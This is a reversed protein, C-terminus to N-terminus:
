MKNRESLEKYSIEPNTYRGRNQTVNKYNIARQPCYQLCAICNECHHNFQPRNNVIEINKVPCVEKCIGCGTCNNDVGYDKDMTSVKKIFDKNIFSFIKMLRNVRNKKKNKKKKKIQVLKKNSKNTIKEIRKSMDYLLVYNSFMQLKRTFNLKINHKNLLLEYIQNMANGAGGGYTIIAYYYSDNNNGFNMNEIFETVKKPLGWFYTPCIFGISDYQKLLSYNGSKAMSVIETNELENAITKAVKLCNGTGSFYFVINEM